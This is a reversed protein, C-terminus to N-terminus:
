ILGKKKMKDRYISSYFKGSLKFKCKDRAGACFCCGGTISMYRIEGKKWKRKLM